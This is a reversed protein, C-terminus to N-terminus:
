PPIFSYIVILNIRARLSTPVNGASRAPFRAKRQL